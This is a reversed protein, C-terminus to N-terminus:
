RGEAIFSNRFRVWPDCGLVGPVRDFPAAIVGPATSGDSRCDSGSIVNRDPADGPGGYLPAPLAPIIAVRGGNGNADYSATFDAWNAFFGFVDPLRTRLDDTLPGVGVLARSLEPLAPRLDELLPRLRELDAPGKDILGQASAIAPRARDLAPRLRRSFPVLERVTPRSVRVLSRLNPIAARLRSLAIRPEALGSPLRQLGERLADQQQATTRALVALEDITGGLASPDEALASVVQRGKVVFTRLAETDANVQGVVGALESLAKASTSLAAEIDPGRGTTAADLSEFLSRVDARTERDLTELVQDLEEPAATTARSLVAGDPLPAGKGLELDIFRNIEGSLSFLRLDARGGDTIRFDEDIEMTILPFGEDNLDIRTVEGIKLGGAQVEGGEVLGDAHELVAKAEYTDASGILLLAFVLGVVLALGGVAARRAGPIM